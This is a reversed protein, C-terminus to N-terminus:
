LPVGIVMVKTDVSSGGSDNMVEVKGTSGDTSNVEELRSQHRVGGAVM